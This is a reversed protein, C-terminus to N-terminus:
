AGSARASVAARKADFLDFADLIRKKGNQVHRYNAEYCAKADRRKFAAVIAHHEQLSELLVEKGVLGHRRFLQFEKLLGEYMRALRANGTAEVIFLHFRNNVGMFGQYDSAYAAEKMEGLLADLTVLHSRKVVPALLMGSLGTLGARM